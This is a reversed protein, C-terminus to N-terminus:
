VIRKTPLTLHTYSVTELTHLHIAPPLTTFSNSTTMRQQKQQNTTATSSKSHQQQYRAFAKSTGTINTDVRQQSYTLISPHTHTASAFRASEIVSSTAGFYIRNRSIVRESNNLAQAVGRGDDHLLRRIMLFELEGDQLSATARSYDSVVALAHISDNIMAWQNTPFFNAAVPETANYPYNPRSDRVRKQLELGQSDVYWTSKSKITNNLVTIKMVIEKGLTGADVAGMGVSLTVYNEWTFPDFATSKKVDEEKEFSPASIGDDNCVRIAQQISSAYDVIMRAETCVPGKVIVMKHLTPAFPIPKADPTCPRFIYAGSAQTGGEGANPCYWYFGQRVATNATVGTHSTTNINVLGLAPDVTVTVHQNGFSVAPAGLPLLTEEAVFASTTSTPSSPPTNLLTFAFVGRAPIKARILAEYPHPAAPYPTSTPDTTTTLEWTSQVQMPIGGPNQFAKAGTAGDYTAAAVISIHQNTPIPVTIVEQRDHQLSNYVIVTITGNSNSSSLPNTYVCVSVNGLDCARPHELGTIDQLLLSLTSDSQRMGLTLIKRYQNWVSARATGTISDHHQAVGLAQRLADVDNWRSSFSEPDPIQSSLLIDTSSRRNMLNREFHKYEAHSTLYGSWYANENDSDLFYDDFNMPWKFGSNLVRQLYRDPTSYEFTLYPYRAVVDEFEADMLGFSSFADIHQFDCGWPVLVKNTRYMSGYQAMELIFEDTFASIDHIKHDHDKEKSLPPMRFMKRMDPLSSKKQGARLQTDFVQKWWPPGNADM